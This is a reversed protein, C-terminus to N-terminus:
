QRSQQLKQNQSNTRFIRVYGCGRVSCKSGSEGTELGNQEGMQVFCRWLVAYLCPLCQVIVNLNLVTFFTLASRLNTM